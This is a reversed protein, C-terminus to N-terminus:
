DWGWPNEEDVTDDKPIEDYREEHILQRTTQRNKRHSLEKVTKMYPRESPNDERGKQRNKM